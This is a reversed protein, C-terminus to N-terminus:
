AEEKAQRDLKAGVLYADIVSYLWLIVAVGGVIYAVTMDRKLLEDRLLAWKQESNIAEESLSMIAQSVRAATYFLITVVLISMTFILMAGKGVQRNIVQGLGPLIVASLLPSVLRRVM